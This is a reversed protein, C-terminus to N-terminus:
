RTTGDTFKLVAPTNGLSTSSRRPTMAGRADRWRVWGTDRGRATRPLVPLSAIRDRVPVAVPYLTPGPAQMVGTVSARVATSRRSAEGGREGRSRPDAPDRTEWLGEDALEGRRRARWLLPSFLSGEILLADGKFAEERTPADHTSPRVSGLESCGTRVRDGPQAQTDPDWGCGRDTSRVAEDLARARDIPDEALQHVAPHDQLLRDERSTGWGVTPVSASTPRPSGTLLLAIANAASMSIM